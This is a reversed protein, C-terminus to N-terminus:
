SRLFDKIKSFFSESKPSSGSSSVAFQQLLDKQKKNLKVPTEVIINVYMDGRSEFDLRKKKIGNNKVRIMGKNKVRLKDNTQTGEPVKIKIKSGELSPVEIEGGLAALSMAVPVDCSIDADKISFFKHKKISICVYLDGCKGGYLGAEGKGSLPIRDGNVAGPDIDVFSRLEKRYRGDGGCRKCPNQIIDGLGYCVHCTREVDFFGQQTCIVGVGGCTTCKVYQADGENGSGACKECKVQTSYSLPVRVGHFAEELSISIDYRLDSGRERRDSKQKRSSQRDFGGSFLDNFIDSFNRSGSGGFGRFGGSSGSASGDFASHGFNDYASRKQKDQLVEYAESIEKFKVEATKDGPNKDPHYKMAAKRYAKKIEDASASQSVGLLEYYDKKAM